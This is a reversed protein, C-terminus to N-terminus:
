HGSYRTSGTGYRAGRVVLLEQRVGDTAPVACDAVSLLRDGIRHLQGLPLHLPYRRDQVQVAVRSNEDVSGVVYGYRRAAAPRGEPHEATSLIEVRDGLQLPENAM